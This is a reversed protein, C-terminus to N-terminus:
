PTDECENYWSSAGRWNMRESVTPSTLHNRSYHIPSLPTRPVTWLPAESGNTSVRKLEQTTYVASSRRSYRDSFTASPSSASNQGHVLMRETASPSYVEQLPSLVVYDSPFPRKDLKVPVSEVSAKRSLMSADISETRIETISRELGHIRSAPPLHAPAGRSLRISMRAGPLIFGSYRLNSYDSAAHHKTGFVTPFFRALIPKCGPLSGCIIALNTELGALIFVMAGNYFLDYHRFYYTLYWLRVVGIVCAIVGITFVFVLGVKQQTPLRVGWLTRAPWLFILLDSISNVAQTAVTLAQRDVCKPAYELPNWYGIIPWCQFINIFTIVVCFIISFGIGFQAFSRDSQSPFVRLYTMCISIKALSASPAFLVLSVYTLKGAPIYHSIPIDWIHYGIAYQTSLCHCLTIAVAFVAALAMVWDDWGLVNRLCTRSYFRACVFIIALITFPAEIGLLLNVRTEPDVFNSSPWSQIQELTPTSM